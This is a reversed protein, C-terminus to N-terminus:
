TQLITKKDGLLPPPVDIVVLIIGIPTCFEDKKKYLNYFNDGPKSKYASNMEHAVM